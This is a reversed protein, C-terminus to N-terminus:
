AIIKRLTDTVPQTIFHNSVFGWLYLLVVYVMMTTRSEVIFNLRYVDHVILMILIGVLQWVYVDFSVIALKEIIEKQFFSAVNSMGILYILAPFYGFTMVFFIEDKVLSYKFIILISVLLLM